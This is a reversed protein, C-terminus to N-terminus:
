LEWGRRYERTLYKNAEQLNTIRMSAADYDVKRGARLAVAALNITETVPGALLFSGPSEKKNKISSVWTNSRRRQGEEQVEKQGAYARMKKEPIIQPREGRFGALIKGKDGVFMMGEQPLSKNDVMLEEPPFPKMGGDYWFLDFPPLDRQKPFKFRIMCSYPFAVNNNVPQSV